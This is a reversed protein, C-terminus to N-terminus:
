HTEDDSDIDFTISKFDSPPLVLESFDNVSLESEIRPASAPPNAGIILTKTSEKAAVKVLGKMGMSKLTNTTKVVDTAVSFGDQTVKGAEEGYKHHVIGVVAKGTSNMLTMGAEELSNWITVFTRAGVRGLNKAAVIRPDELEVKNSSRIKTKIQDAALSGVGKVVTHVTSVLMGSLEAIHPTIQKAISLTNKITEPIQPPNESPDILDKIKEASSTIHKSLFDAGVLIGHSVWQGSIDVTQAVSNIRDENIITIHSEQTITVGPHVVLQNQEDEPDEIKSPKTTSGKFICIQSIKEEFRECYIQPITEPFIIGFFTNDIGPLIYYGSSMALCPITQNLEYAFKNGINIYYQGEICFFSYLM